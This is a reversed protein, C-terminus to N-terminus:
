SNMFNMSERAPGEGNNTERVLVPALLYTHAPFTQRDTRGALIHTGGRIKKTTATALERSKM